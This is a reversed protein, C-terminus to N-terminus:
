LRVRPCHAFDACSLVAAFPNQGGVLAERERKFDDNWREGEVYRENGKLLRKLSAEPSVVNEPKPPSKDEKAGVRGALFLGASSVAFLGLSRRLNGDACSENAYKM